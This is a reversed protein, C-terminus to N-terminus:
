ALTWVTRSWHVYVLRAGNDYVRGSGLKSGAGQLVHHTVQRAGERSGGKCWDMLGFPGTGHFM